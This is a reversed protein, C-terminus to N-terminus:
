LKQEAQFMRRANEWTIKPGFVLPLLFRAYAVGRWPMGTTLGKYICESKDSGVYESISIWSDEDVLRKERRKLVDRFMRLCKEDAVRDSSAPSSRFGPIAAFLEQPVTTAGSWDIIGRINYNADVLINNYHLDPHSLPFPGSIVQKEIAFLVAKTLIWSALKRDEPSTPFTDDKQLLENENNRTDQIFDISTSYVSSEGSSPIIRFTETSQDYELSGITSFSLSGLQVLYEALQALFTRQYESPIQSYPVGLPRGRLAEMIIFPFGVENGPDVDYDFVIPVPITTRDTIFQLTHVESRLSATISNKDSDFLGFHNTRLRAIWTVGDSFQIEFVLNCRGAAFRTQDITCTDDFPNESALQTKRALCARTQLAIFDIQQICNEVKTRGNIPVNHYSNLPLQQQPSTNLPIVLNPTEITM